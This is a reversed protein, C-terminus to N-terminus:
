LNRRIIAHSLNGVLIFPVAVNYYALRTIPNGAQGNIVM